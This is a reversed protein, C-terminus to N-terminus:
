KLAAYDLKRFEAAYDFDAALPNSAPAHQHLINLNLQKPWWDRNSQVGQTTRAGQMNAFPCKSENSM